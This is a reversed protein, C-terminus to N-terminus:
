FLSQGQKESDFKPLVVEEGEKLGDLIEVYKDTTMGLKVQRKEADKYYSSDLGYEDTKQSAKPEKNKESTKAKQTYVYVYYKGDEKHVAEVPVVLADEKSKLVIEAEAHMGIKINSNNEFEIKVVFKSISSSDAQAKESIEAVYGEIPNNKTSEVADVKINVKQGPKVKLIDLEEVQASIVLHKPDYVSCILQGATVVDGEQFNLDAIKGSIPAFIKYNKLDDEAAKIQSEMDEIKLDLQKMQMEIDDLVFKLLLDGTKVKQGNEVFVKEIRGSVPSVISKKSFAGLIGESLSTVKKGNSLMFSVNARMGETLSSNKNSVVIKADFVIAGDQNKYIRSGLSEVVGGVSDMLDSVVVEVKQGRKVKGYCWAPFQVSLKMRSDDVITMMQMGQSALMGEGASINQVFGDQPSKLISNQLQRQLNEKQLQLDLLQRKLSEIKFSAQNDDILAIIDGKKVFQGNKVFLKKVEGNVKSLVNRTTSSQITGSVLLTQKIFIRKAKATKPKSSTTKKVGSPMTFVLTLVFGVSILLIVIVAKQWDKLGKKANQM